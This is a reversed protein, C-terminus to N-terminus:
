IFSQAVLTAIIAVLVAVLAFVMRDLRQNIPELRHDMTDLRDVLRVELVDLDAKTALDASTTPGLTGSRRKCPARRFFAAM